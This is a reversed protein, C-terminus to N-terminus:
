PLLEAVVDVALQAEGAVDVEAVVGRLQGRQAREDVLRVLGPEGLHAQQVM